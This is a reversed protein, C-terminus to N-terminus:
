KAGGKRLEEPSPQATASDPRFTMGCGKCRVKHGIRGQPVRGLHGCRPCSIVVLMTRAGSVRFVGRSAALAKEIRLIAPHLFIAPNQSDEPQRKPTRPNSHWSISHPQGLKIKPLRGIFAM